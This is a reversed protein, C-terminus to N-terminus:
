KQRAVIWSFLTGLSVDKAVWDDSGDELRRVYIRMVRSPNMFSLRTVAYAVFRSDPSWALCCWPDKVSLLLKRETGSPHVAYYSNGDLFAIWNGDPSWSADEGHALERWNKQTIDCVGVRSHRGDKDRLDVVTYAIQRGDPSWCQPTVWAEPGIQEVSGSVLDVLLLGVRFREGPQQVHASIVLKTKDPSWCPSAPERVSPYERLGSGDRRVIALVRPTGSRSPSLWRFALETGDPSLVGNDSRSELMNMHKFSFSRHLFGITDINGYEFGTLTLGTEEQLSALQARVGPKKEKPAAQASFVVVLAMGLVPFMRIHAMFSLILVSLVGRGNWQRHGNM